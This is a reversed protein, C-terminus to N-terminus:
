APCSGSITLANNGENTEKIEGDPDAVVTIETALSRGPFGVTEYASAGSAPMIVTLEAVAQPTGSPNSLVRVKVPQYGSASISSQGATLTIIFSVQRCTTNGPDASLSLDPYAPKVMPESIVVASGSARDQTFVGGDSGGPLKSGLFPSDRNMQSDAVSVLLLLLSLLVAIEFTKCRKRM